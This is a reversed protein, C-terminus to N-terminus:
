ARNLSPCLNRPACQALLLKRIRRLTRQLFLRFIQATLHANIRTDLEGCEDYLIYAAATLNSYLLGQAQVRRVRRVVCLENAGLSFGLWASLFYDFWGNSPAIIANEYQRNERTWAGHSLAGTSITFTAHQEPAYM